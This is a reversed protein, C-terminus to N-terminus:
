IKYMWCACSWIFIFTILLVKCRYLINMCIYSVWNGDKRSLINQVLSAPSSQLLPYTGLEEQWLGQLWEFDWKRLLIVKKKSDNLCLSRFPLPLWKYKLLCRGHTLCTDPWLCSHACARSVLPLPEPDTIQLSLQAGSWARALPFETGAETPSVASPRCYAWVCKGSEERSWEVTTIPIQEKRIVQRLIWKRGLALLLSPQQLVRSRVPGLAM